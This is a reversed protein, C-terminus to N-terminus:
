TAPRVLLDDLSDGEPLSKFLYIQCSRAVLIRAIFSSAILGKGVLFPM